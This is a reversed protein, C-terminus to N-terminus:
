LNSSPSSLSSFFFCHFCFSFPFVAPYSCCLPILLLLLFPFVSSLLSHSLFCQACAMHLLLPLVASFSVLLSFRVSSPPPHPLVPAAAVSQKERWTRWTYSFVMQGTWRALGRNKCELPFVFYIFIHRILLQSGSFLFCLQLHESPENYRKCFSVTVFQSVSNRCWESLSFHACCVHLHSEAGLM